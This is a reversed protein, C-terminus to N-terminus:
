ALTGSPCSRSNVAITCPLGAPPRTGRRAASAPCPCRAHFAQRTLSGSASRCYKGRWIAPPQTDRHRASFFHPSPACPRPLSRRPRPGARPRHSGTRSGPSGRRSPRASSPNRRGPGIIRHQVVDVPPRLRWGQDARAAVARVSGALDGPDGRPPPQPLHGRRQDDARPRLVGSAIRIRLGLRDLLGVQLAAPVETCRQRGSQSCPM